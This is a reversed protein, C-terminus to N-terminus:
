RTRREPGSAATADPDDDRLLGRARLEDLLQHAAATVAAGDATTPMRGAPFSLHVGPALEVAALVPTTDEAPTTDEDVPAPTAAWFAASRHTPGAPAPQRPTPQPVPQRPRAEASAARTATTAVAGIAALERDTRGVLRQQIDGLAVDDAQLRKIALVQLVHREGYLATRGRHSVPPDLLGLTRYYRLTRETPAAGNGDPARLHRGVQRVLEDITFTAGDPASASGPTTGM